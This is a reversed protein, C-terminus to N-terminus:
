LSASKIQWGICEKVACVHTQENGAREMDGERLLSLCLQAPYITGEGRFLAKKTQATHAVSVSITVMHWGVKMLQRNPSLRPYTCFDLFTVVFLDSPWQHRTNAYAPNYMKLQQVRKLRISPLLISQCQLYKRFSNFRLIKLNCQMWKEFFLEARKFATSLMVGDKTQQTM